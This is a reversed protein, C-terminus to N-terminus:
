LGLEMLRNRRVELDSVDIGWVELARAANVRHSGYSYMDRKRMEEKVMKKLRAITTSSRNGFLEKLEQNGLESHTYYLQIAANISTIAPISM